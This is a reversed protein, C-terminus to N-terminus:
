EVTDIMVYLFNHHIREKQSPLAFVSGGIEDRDIYQIYETTVLSLFGVSSKLFNFISRQHAM